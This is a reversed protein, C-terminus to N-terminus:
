VRSSARVAGRISATFERAFREVADWDTFDYDRSTDLETRGQRKVILKMVHRIFINYQTYVLAGAITEVRRPQWGTESIFKNVMMQTENAAEDDPDEATLSVSFFASPVRELLARNRKVFEQLSSQHEGAHISGGVLIGNFKGSVTQKRLEKADHLEAQCGEGRIVSAMREAIQATHGDTTGYVILLGTMSNEKLRVISRGGDPGLSIMRAPAIFTQRTSHWM